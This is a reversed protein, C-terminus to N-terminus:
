RFSMAQKGLEKAKEFNAYASELNITNGDVGYLDARGKEYFENAEAEKAAAEEEAKRAAEAEEAAKAAEEEEATTTDTETQATVETEEKSVGGCGSLIGIIMATMLTIAIRRNKM